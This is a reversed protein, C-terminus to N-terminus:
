RVSLLYAGGATAGGSAKASIPFSFLSAGTALLRLMDRRSQPAEVSSADISFYDHRHNMEAPWHVITQSDFANQLGSLTFAVSDELTLSLLLVISLLHVNMSKNNYKPNRRMAQHWLNM